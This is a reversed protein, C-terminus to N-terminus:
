PTTEDFADNLYTWGFGGCGATLDSRDATNAAEADAV